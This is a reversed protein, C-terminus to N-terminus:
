GDSRSRVYTRFTFAHAHRQDAPHPQEDVLTWASFDVPPFITDGAVDAHVATLYLRDAVPLAARYVAAGGAVFVEGTGAAALAAPLDPATEVGAPRFSPDRTLVIWRRHPLARGLSAWTRRGVIVAHNTTLRKFWRLDDPLHWPLGGERGIVGNDAVAAILAVTV